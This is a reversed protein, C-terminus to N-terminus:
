KGTAVLCESYMQSAHMRGQSLTAERWAQEYGIRPEATPVKHPQGQLLNAVEALAFCVKWREQHAGLWRQEIGGVCVNGLVYTTVGLGMVHLIGLTVQQVTFPPRNFLPSLEHGHNALSNLLQGLKQIREAEM